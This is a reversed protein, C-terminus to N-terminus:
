GRGCGCNTAENIGSWGSPWGDDHGRDRACSAAETAGPPRGHRRRRGVPLHLSRQNQDRLVVAEPGEAQSLLEAGDCNEQRQSHQQGARPRGSFRRREAVDRRVQEWRSRGVRRGAEPERRIKRLIPHHRGNEDRHYVVKRRVVPDHGRRRARRPHRPLGPGPRAAPHSVAGGPGDHFLHRRGQRPATRHLLITTTYNCDHIVFKRLPLDANCIRNRMSLFYSTICKYSYSVKNAICLREVDTIIRYIADGLFPNGPKAALVANMIGDQMWAGTNSQCAGIFGLNLPTIKKKTNKYKEAQYDAIQQEVKELKQGKKNYEIKLDVYWGGVKYLVLLRFLDGKYANPKIAKFATYVRPLYHENIFEEAQEMNYFVAKYDPNIDPWSRFARKMPEAMQAYVGDETVNRGKSTGSLFMRHLIRPITEKGEEDYPTELPKLLFGKYYYDFYGMMNDTLDAGAMGTQHPDWNTSTKDDEIPTIESQDGCCVSKQQLQVKSLELFGPAKIPSPATGPELIPAEEQKAEVAQDQPLVLAGSTSTTTEVAKKVEQAEEVAVQYGEVDVMQHQRLKKRRKITDEKLMEAIVQTYSSVVPPIKELELASLPEDPIDDHDNGLLALTSSTATGFDQESASSTVLPADAPDEYFDMSNDENESDGRQTVLHDFSFDHKEEQQEHAHAKIMNNGSSRGSAADGRGTTDDGRLPQLTRMNLGMARELLVNGVSVLVCFAGSKKLPLDGHRHHQQAAPPQNMGKNGPLIRM